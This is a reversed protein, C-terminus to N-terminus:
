WQRQGRDFTGEALGTVRFGVRSQVSPMSSPVPPAGLDRSPRSPLMGLLHIRRRCTQFEIRAGFVRFRVNQVRFGLYTQSDWRGLVQQESLYTSNLNESSAMLKTRLTKTQAQQNEQIYPM